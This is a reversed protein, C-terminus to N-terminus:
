ILISDDVLKKKLMCFYQPTIELFSAIEKNPIRAFYKKQSLYAIKEMVPLTHFAERRDVEAILMRLLWEHVNGRIFPSLTNPAIEMVVCDTLAQISHGKEQLKRVRLLCREKFLDLTNGAKDHSACIGDLILYYHAENLSTIIQTRAYREFRANELLSKEMQENLPSAEDRLIDRVASKWENDSTEQLQPYVSM